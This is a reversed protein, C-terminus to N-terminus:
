LLVAIHHHHYAVSECVYIRGFPILKVLNTGMQIWFLTMLCKLYRECHCLEPTGKYILIFLLWLREGERLLNEYGIKWWKSTIHLNKKQRNQCDLLFGYNAVTYKHENVFYFYFYFFIIFLLSWSCIIQPLKGRNVHLAVHACYVCRTKRPFM